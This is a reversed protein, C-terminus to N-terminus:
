KNLSILGKSWGNLDQFVCIYYIYPNRDVTWLYVPMAHTPVVLRRDVEVEKLKHPKLIVVLLLFGLFRDHVIQM